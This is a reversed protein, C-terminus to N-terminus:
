VQFVWGVGIEQIDVLWSKKDFANIFSKINRLAIM